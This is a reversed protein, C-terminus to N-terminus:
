LTNNLVAPLALAELSALRQKLSPFRISMYAFATPMFFSRKELSQVIHSDAVSAGVPMRTLNARFDGTTAAGPISFLCGAQSPFRAEM